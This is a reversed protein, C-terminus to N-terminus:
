TEQGPAELAREKAWVYDPKGSPFRSVKDVFTLQRPVKYGGISKRCHTQIDELTIPKGSVTEIVAAVRQMWKPDPVGVVLADRVDPHSKLAEEVEEPFVKEGGTNICNSGRGYVTIRGDEEVTASDGPIVWRVGDKVIFREATKEADKYYGLPIRGCRALKGLKGSGPPLPNNDDDLVANTEDMYFSPRGDAGTEEGVSAGQHGVETAGFNNLIMTDPLLAQLAEKNTPSLVAGASALSFLSGCDYKAGPVQLEDLIPRAMADGVIVLSNVGEEQILELIKKADFSKGQQLVLKGGTLMGIWATFQAAGHIFPAAPLMSMGIGRDVANTAVEEPSSVPDGGPNGGQLGAFFLDEQRWMVGKPKGTTGGTYVIYLDDGSREEFDRVTSGSQLSAEYEKADVPNAEGSEDELYIVTHLTNTGERAEAVMPLFARQTFLVGLEADEIMYRLEHAVYRYNINIPVARLKLCALLAEVFEHGNWMHLGVLHGPKVGRERLFHALQTAREDLTKFTRRVSGSVLAESDPIADALSEMLDAINYNLKRGM